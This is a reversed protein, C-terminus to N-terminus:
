FSLSQVKEKTIIPISSSSSSVPNDINTISETANCSLSSSSSPNNDSTNTSTTFMNEPDLSLSLHNRATVILVRMKARIRQIENMTDIDTNYNHLPFKQILDLLQHSTRLLRLIPSLSTSSSSANPNDNDTDINPTATTINSLNM